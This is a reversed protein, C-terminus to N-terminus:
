KLYNQYSFSRWHGIYWELIDQHFLKIVMTMM